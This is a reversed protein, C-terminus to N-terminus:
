LRSPDCLIFERVFNIDAAEVQSREPQRKPSDSQAVVPTPRYAALKAAPPRIIGM